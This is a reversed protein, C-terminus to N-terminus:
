SGLLRSRALGAGRSFGPRPKRVKARLVRDVLLAVLQANPRLAEGVVVALRPQEEARMVSGSCRWM